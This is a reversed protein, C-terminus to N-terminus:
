RLCLAYEKLAPIEETDVGIAKQLRRALEESKPCSARGSTTCDDGIVKKLNEYKEKASNKLEKHEESDLEWWPRTNWYSKIEKLPSDHIIKGQLTTTSHVNDGFRTIHWLSYRAYRPIMSNSWLYPETNAKGTDSFIASINALHNDGKLFDELEDALAGTMIFDADWRFTYEFEGKMLIWNLLWITSHVSTVPTCVNELGTKGLQFPYHYININQGGDERTNVEQETEDECQNLVVNVEYPIKLQRLSDLALGITREENKARMIFSIGPKKEKTYWSLDLTYEEQKGTPYITKVTSSPASRERTTSKPSVTPYYKELWSMQSRNPNITYWGKDWITILSEFYEQYMAAVRELSFNALAYDRCVQPSINEINRVAWIFQDLTRCRYGVLGHLITEPFVGWDTCIVPTGSILSEISVGGFPEIYVTPMLLGKAKSFLARRMEADAFGIHEIIEGGLSKPITLNGQGAIKVHIGSAKAIELVTEIGKRKIIRGLYLFYDEKEDPTFDFDDPDFYNPVVADFYSGNELPVRQGQDNIVGRGYVHSMWTYSEFVRHRCFTDKYGIGPEVTLVSNGLADAMPKHGWGWSALFFDRNGQRKKIEEIANKYFEKHCDDKVDYDWQKDHWEDPYFKKRYEDTIVDIHETCTPNSGECGYHYVEHGLSHLMKCLKFVKQTFACHIFKRNTVTHPLGPVHFRM